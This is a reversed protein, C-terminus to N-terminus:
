ARAYTPSQPWLAETYPHVPSTCLDRANGLEVIKGLYMVAIRDALNAVVGMNHTILLVSMSMRERLDKILELIQAQITVDLATTPEDALLLQPHCVLALAILARQRMGGSLKHAYRNM